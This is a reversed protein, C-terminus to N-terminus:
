IVFMLVLVDGGRGVQHLYPVHTVPIDYRRLCMGIIMDDPSDNQPCDCEEALKRATKMSFVM